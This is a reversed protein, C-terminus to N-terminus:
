GRDPSDVLIIVVDMVNTRTPGTKLLTGAHTFFTYADNNELYARAAGSQERSSAVTDPLVLAGAADTPGDTGDTGVCALAISTRCEQMESVAIAAALALEQNRGGLGNGKITVTTEGGALLCVPPPTTGRGKCYDGAMRILRNAVDRAEGEMARDVVVPTYGLERAAEGAGDVAMGNGAIIVNQVRDFCSDGEKLTEPEEGACGRAIVETVGDPIAGCLAYKDLITQCDLFTSEDPATPGSGIVDLFDGVVDSIILSIVTAPELAKAFHGGKFASLHKRIANIENITAGCELLTRTTAQKDALTVPKRPAPVIASAGGSLLCFVLDKEGVGLAISLIERSALEGAHDPVPHGSEMIVIKKLALGHDYKTAVVGGHLRTGLMDELTKAMSASAKGAGLVLIRDFEALNYERGDVTLIDEDLSLAARMAPEPSVAEIAATAVHLLQDKKKTYATM